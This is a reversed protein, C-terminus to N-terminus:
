DAVSLACLSLGALMLIQHSIFGSPLDLIHTQNFYVKPLMDNIRQIKRDSHTIDGSLIVSTADLNLELQNATLITYYMLEEPNNFEFVNYFALRTDQYYLIQLLNGEVNLYLPQTYPRAFNIAKIWAKGAFYVSRLDFLNTIGKSLEESIKFVVYNDADLKNLLITDTPEKTLFQGYDTIQSHDYLEKPIITFSSTHVAIRVNQYDALLIMSLESPELLESVPYQEGWVLVKNSELQIVSFSFVEGTILILLEDGGAQEPDFEADFYNYRGNSM